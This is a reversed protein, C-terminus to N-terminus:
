EGKHTQPTRGGAGAAEKRGGPGEGRSDEKRDMIDGTKQCLRQMGHRVTCGVVEPDQRKDGNSGVVGPDQWRHIESRDVRSGEQWRACNTSSRVPEM